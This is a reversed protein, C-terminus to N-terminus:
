SATSVPERAMLANMAAAFRSEPHTRAIALADDWRDVDRRAAVIHVTLGLEILRAHQKAFTDDRSMPVRDFANVGRGSDAFGIVWWGGDLAPGLVADVGPADLADMTADLDAPGIQPTDMGIQIAPGDVACWAAALREGLSGHVQPVVRVGSPCWRGAVGDLALVVRDARSAVANALTERLAAEALRAAQDPTCPPCLRTKVAGPCPEKAVVLLEV